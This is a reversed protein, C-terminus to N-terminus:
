ASATASFPKPKRWSRSSRCAGRRISLLLALEEGEFRVIPHGNQMLSRGSLLLRVTHMMNKADFDLEGREQQQWRADNRERRWAWYNNHDVLAQKWGHKTTFCSARSASGERRGGPHIRLGARRRPVRGRASTATDIFGICTARTSWDRRTISM